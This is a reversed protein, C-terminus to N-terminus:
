IGYGMYRRPKRYLLIGLLIGAALGGIHAANDINMSTFGHYLTLLIMVGLQRSTLDELRGRNVGVAYVLGGVVGFIAGSAGAGVSLSGMMLNVTMSVLNAGVGCLLYFILYKVHGLARELNDGLVFLVLMNNMLHSVGFHMFVSTVLRYYQGHDVVLPAFMAGHALMFGANETSGQLELYLFCLVNIIIIATNVYATKRGYVRM